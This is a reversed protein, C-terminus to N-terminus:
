GLGCEGMTLFSPGFLAYRDVSARTEPPLGMSHCRAQPEIPRRRFGGDLQVSCPQGQSLPMPSLRILQIQDWELCDGGVGPAHNRRSHKTAEGHWALTRRDTDQFHHELCAYGPWRCRWSRGLLFVM